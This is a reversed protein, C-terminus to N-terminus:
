LDAFADDINRSSTQKGGTPANRAVGTSDVTEAKPGNGGLASNALANELMTKYAETPRLRGRFYAEFDPVSALLEKIAAATAALPTSKKREAIKYEKVVHGAFLKETDSVMVGFDRGTKPDFLDEDLYDQHALIAYIDKVKQSNLEWVQVGKEEEGRVLVPAYYSDKARLAGMLKFVETPQRTKSLEGLFEFIPDEEGFQAPAVQRWGGEGVLLKNTYWGVQHFPQNSADAYPIFRIQNDGDNPKWFPLTPGKEKPASAKKPRGGNQIESLRSQIAELNYTSM